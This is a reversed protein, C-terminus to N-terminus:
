SSTTEPAAGSGSLPSTSPLSGANMMYVDPVVPRGLPAIRVWSLRSHFAILTRPVSMPRRPSSTVTATAGNNWM